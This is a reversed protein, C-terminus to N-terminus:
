SVKMMVISVSDFFHLLPKGGEGASAIAIGTVVSFVVLGLINTNDSFEGICFLHISLLIKQFSM